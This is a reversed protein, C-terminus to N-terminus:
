LGSRYPNKRAFFRLHEQYRSELNWRWLFLRVGLGSSRAFVLAKGIGVGSIVIRHM